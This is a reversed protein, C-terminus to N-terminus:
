AVSIKKAPVLGTAVLRADHVADIKACEVAEPWAPLEFMTLRRVLRFDLGSSPLWFVKRSAVPIGKWMRVRYFHWDGSWRRQAFLARMAYGLNQSAGAAWLSGDAKREILWQDPCRRCRRHLLRALLWDAVLAKLGLAATM